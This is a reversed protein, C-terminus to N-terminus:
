HAALRDRIAAVGEKFAPLDDWDLDFSNIGISPDIIIVKVTPGAYIVLHSPSKTDTETMAGLYRWKVSASREVPKLLEVLALSDSHSLGYSNRKDAAIGVLGALKEQQSFIVLELKTGDKTFSKIYTLDRTAPSAAGLALSILLVLPKM